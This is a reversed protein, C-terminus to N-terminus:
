VHQTQVSFSGPSHRRKIGEYYKYLTTSASVLSWKMVLAVHKFCMKVIARRQKEKRVADVVVRKLFLLIPRHPYNQRIRVTDYIYYSSM